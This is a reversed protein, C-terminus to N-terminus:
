LLCGFLVWGPSYGIRRCERPLGTRSKVMLRSRSLLLSRPAFVFLACSFICVGLVGFQSVLRSLHSLSEFPSSVMLRCYYGHGLVLAFAGVECHCLNEVYESVM